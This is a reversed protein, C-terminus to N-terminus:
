MVKKRKYFCHNEPLCRTEVLEFEQLIYEWVHPHTNKFRLDDRGDLPFDYVFAWNVGRKTLTAIIENQKTETEPFLLYDSYVPTERQFIPYLMSYIPAIFILDNSHLNRDVFQRVCDLFSAQYEPIWLKEGHLTYPVFKKRKDLKDMLPVLPKATFFGSILLLTWIGATLFNQPQNVIVAAVGLLFPQISECLHSVDARSFAHHMYFFGVFSSAVLLSCGQFPQSILVSLVAGLYFVPLLLFHLGLFFNSIRDLLCLNSYEIRWPWPIPRPLNATGRRFIVLIKDLWYTRFMKPIFIWMVLMPSYGLVIGALWIGYSSLLDIREIKFWIFAIIIFFSALCYAGHNRGMFAALGVFVGSLFFFPPTPNEIITVAFFVAILSLAHDFRKHRPQMWWTLLIGILCLQWVSDVASGAALMGLWLGLCQFVSVSRRIGLIGRGFIKTWAASWFFRGPDYSKFDRIPIKGNATRLVGNWLFGEDYLNLGINEQLVESLLVLSIALLLAIM